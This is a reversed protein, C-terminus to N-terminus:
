PLPLAPVNANAPSAQVLSGRRRLSALLTIAIAGVASAITAWRTRLPEHFELVVSAPTAPVGVMMAGDAAASVPLIQGNATATWHPYFFTRVRVAIAEGAGIDFVRREPEWSRVSVTRSGADIATKMERVPENVWTPLWQSVGQSGPILRLTADFEPARLYQAERVIHSASFALSIAMTGTAIMVLRRKKERWLTTWFPIAEAFVLPSLLSIIVLWRWPFQTQQLPRILYWLPRSLPTAMLIAALLLIGIARITRVDQAPRVPSLAGNRTRKWLLALSPWFLAVTMLLLINMWWVNLNDPSLTSLVFNKRYDVSPDPQINDARIWKLEALVTTWYGASAVLGLILSASLGAITNWRKAPELRFVVYVLLAISGIVTLPVHTCVLIAYSAALGAVDRFRRGTCVREAFAFVFPLVAAGAFEALLFAQYIQNLHYPAVAFLIGAWMASERAAFQRAWFYVGAAGTVSLLAFVSVTASYWSGSVARAVALLYYLAPPYFRFSADGYGSNSEALWGPYLHGHQLAEYFPLAFRFHNVLDLNSPVGFVIVPLLVAIGALAVWSISRCEALIRPSAPSTAGWGLSLERM